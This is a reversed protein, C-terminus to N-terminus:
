NQLQLKPTLLAKIQHDASAMARELSNTTLHLYRDTTEAKKHRLIKQVFKIDMGNDLWHTARAHRLDHVRINKNINVKELAKNLVKRISSSSYKKENVGEFLYVKPKYKQYYIRLLTKTDAPIPIYADKGGKGNVIKIINKTKDIDTIKLNICESIRLACSYILQLIAQHKLNEISKILHYTERESLIDPVFDTTKPQPIKKIGNCDLVGIFFHNLAGHSQKVTRAAGRQILFSIIQAKTTKEPEPHLQLFKKLISSYISITRESLGLIKLYNQYDTIYNKM